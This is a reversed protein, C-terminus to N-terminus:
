RLEIWVGLWRLDRNGPELDAPRFGAESRVAVLMPEDRRPAPLQVDVAEQPAMRREERWDGSSLLVVNAAPGNRVHLRAPGRTQVALRGEGAGVIWLGGPEAFIDEGQAFIAGAATIVARDARLGCTAATGLKIPQLRIGDVSSRLSPDPILWLWTAGAPLDIACDTVGPAHETFTCRQLVADVRGLAISLAGTARPGSDLMVRYRGPPVDRGTWLPGDPRAPRRAGDGIALASGLLPIVGLRLPALQLASRGRGCANALVAIASTGPETATRGTLLWAAGAGVTLTMCATLGATLYWWGAARLRREAARLVFWGVALAGGWVAARSWADIPGGQFLSPLAYALNVAPAVWDLWRAYGDRTNYLLAGDGASSLTATLAITAVLSVLVAARPTRTQHRQWFLAVPIAMPLLVPVLFRAPSSLGAWWMHFAAVVIVYPLAIATIELALRRHLRFLSALGTLAILYIPANPLLGFQQDLLLGTLAVPVRVMRLDTSGGYPARPDFTGYINQFFLLWAVASLVPLAVFAILLRARRTAPVARGERPPTAIRMVVVVAAAGALAAYRTHLWPLAALAAGLSATRSISSPVPERVLAYLVLAIILAAPADPFITFAQFFFPVSLAVATWGVWAATLDGTVQYAARWALLSGAASMLALFLAVGSYGGVAFAPLVLLPLGPAHISYIRGERGRRLYDPKLARDVYALYGRKAHNNEIRLDGDNLLSEAIVLYHPEDGSPLVNSLRWAAGAYVMAALLFAAILHGSLRAPGRIAAGALRRLVIGAIAAVVLAIALPGSWLLTAAPMPVPLWPLLAVLPLWLPAADSGSPRVVVVYALACVAPLIFAWASPLLAIRPLTAGTYLGITGLAAYTGVAFGVAAGVVGWRIPDSATLARM